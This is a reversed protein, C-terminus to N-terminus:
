KHFPLTLLYTSPLAAAEFGLTTDTHTNSYSAGSHPQPEQYVDEAGCVHGARYVPKAHGLGASDQCWPM